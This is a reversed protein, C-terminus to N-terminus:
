PLAQAVLVVQVFLDRPGFSYEVLRFGGLRLLREAHARSEIRTIEDPHLKKQSGFLRLVRHATDLVFVSLGFTPPWFLVIRGGPKLVRRFEKLLKVVDPETFHEMVGLNYVGDVSADPLPVAFASARLLAARGANERAYHDLAPQSIDLATVKMRRTIDVDAQGSGCGAHLLSMGPAFNKFIFRELNSKIVATRYAAAIVNYLTGTAPKDRLRWYEDWEPASIQAARSEASITKPTRRARRWLRVLRMTSQLADSIKMKSTGYTRAPLTIPIEKIKRGNRFLLYLSEFFFSYGMSEVSDFVRKDIRDLRYLRYGGTADFPMGLFFRTLLHGTRTLTLRFANWEDLSDRRMYRSGIVVDVGEAASMFDRIYSPPHTFDCDMTILTQYGQAYARAIADQHASGIGLKGSRHAVTLRPQEKALADLIEGTGDPSHDDMFLVDADLGLALIQRAMQEANDRENYTPIFILTKGLSM